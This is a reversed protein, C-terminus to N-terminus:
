HPLLTPLIALSASAFTTQSSGLIGIKTYGQDFAYQAMVQGQYTDIFCVRFQWPNGATVNPNTASCAMGVVERDKLIEASAMTLASGYSGIVACM